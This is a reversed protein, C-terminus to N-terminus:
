RVRSGGDDRTEHWFSGAALIAWGLASVSSPVNHIITYSSGAIFVWVLTSGLFCWRMLRPWNGWWAVTFGLGVALAAVGVLAYWANTHQFVRNWGSAFTVVTLALAAPQFRRGGLYRTM